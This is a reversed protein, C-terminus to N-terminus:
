KDGFVKRLLDTTRQDVNNRIGEEKTEILSFMGELAKRNVHDDLEPNADRVLPLKNYAQVAGRWLDRANVEDLAGQIVPLFADYLKQHSKNELYRTAADNEGSLINLADDFTIELIADKFIPGAKVAAIEAAENMKNVLNTELNEFGPVLTLKKVVKEAEEPLLIKYPSDLYGNEQSLQNVAEEVGMDLAQKLGKGAENETINKDGTVVEKAKGLLGKLGQGYSIQCVFLLSTVILSASIYKKM